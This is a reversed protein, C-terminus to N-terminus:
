GRAQSGGYAAPPARFFFFLGGGWIKVPQNLKCFPMLITGWLVDTSARSVAATFESPVM